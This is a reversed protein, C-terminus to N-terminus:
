GIIIACYRTAAGHMYRPHLFLQATGWLPRIKSGQVTVHHLCKSLFCDEFTCYPLIHVLVISLASLLLVILSKITIRSAVSMLNTIVLFRLIDLLQDGFTVVM